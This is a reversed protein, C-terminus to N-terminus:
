QEGVQSPLVVIELWYTGLLKIMEFFDNVDLPKTIVSKVGLRYSRIIDVEHSSTTLVVVPIRALDPYQRLEELFQKGDMKPMNLDLLILDPRPSTAPHEYTGRRLLYDLAQEGNEVIFLNNHIKGEELARRTLEQDGPDDEVLLIVAPRASRNARVGDVMESCRGTREGSAGNSLEKVQVRNRGAAKAQYMALDAQSIISLHDTVDSGLTTVGISCTVQFTVGDATSFSHAALARRIREALLVAGQTDTDPLLFCLEEGGYRGAIDTSRLTKRIVEGTAALVQDGVAHGYRDNILKFRDLDMMLVSLSRQYRRARQIEQAAREMFHRRNILGTLEDTLALWRLKNYQEEIKSRMAAKEFSNSLAKRLSDAQLSEKILYDDVGSSIAEVAVQESGQGTLMIVPQMHDAARVARFLELGTESGLLYDIFLLDVLTDQLIGLCEQGSAAHLLDIQWEEIEELYRRLIERDGPSDDVVLFTRKEATKNRDIM